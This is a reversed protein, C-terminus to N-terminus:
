EFIVYTGESNNVIREKIMIIFLSNFWLIILSCFGCLFIKVLDRRGEVGGNLGLRWVGVCTILKDQIVYHKIYQILIIIITIYNIQSCKHLISM